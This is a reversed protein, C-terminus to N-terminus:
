LENRFPISSQAGMRTVTIAAAATAFEVAEALTKGESLGVCIGACFTDGAATTDEAKVKKAPVVTVEGDKFIASGESGLTVVVDEVGKSKLMGVAKHLSEEDHPDVGTLTATETRNPVLLKIYRFIEDPLQCAPAPNLVTYVGAEYAIQAARLVAPVPIELQMLLISSKKIDDAIADIDAPTIDNNAGPAVVICNEGSEDVTILAIGSPKDSRKILSADLGETEYHAIAQNGFLDQGVKCFFTVDTGLRCAAVAQNAGKGGAGMLSEGGLVTEGPKPLKVTKVTMDTNSSGIVMIRTGNM